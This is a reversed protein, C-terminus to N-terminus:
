RSVAEETAPARAKAAVGSTERDRHAAGADRRSTHEGGADPWRALMTTGEGAHSTIELTGGQLAILREPARLDSAQLRPDAGMGDNLVALQVRGGHRSGAVLVRGSPAQAISHKVLAGLVERFVGPDARVCLGPQVALEMRVLREAALSALDRLVRRSEAEVGLVTTNLPALVGSTASAPPQDAQADHSGAPASPRSRRPGFALTLGVVVGVLSLLPWLQLVAGSFPAPLSM